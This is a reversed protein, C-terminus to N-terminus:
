QIMWARQPNIPAVIVVIKVRYFPIAFDFGFKVAPYGGYLTHTKEHHDYMHNKESGKATRPDNSVACENRRSRDRAANRM